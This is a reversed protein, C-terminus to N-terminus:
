SQSVPGFTVIFKFRINYFIRQFAFGHLLMYDILNHYDPFQDSIMTNHKQRISNTVKHVTM